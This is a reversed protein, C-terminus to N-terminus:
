FTKPKRSDPALADSVKQMIDALPGMPISPCSSTGKRLWEYYCERSILVFEDTPSETSSAEGDTTEIETLRRPGIPFKFGYSDYLYARYPIAPIEAEPGRWVHSETDSPIPKATESDLLVSNEPAVPIRGSPDLGDSNVALSVPHTM